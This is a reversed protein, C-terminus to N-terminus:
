DKVCRISFAYEKPATSRNVNKMNAGTMRMWGASPSFESSSWFYANRDIFSFVKLDSQCNGGWQLNFDSYKGRRLIAGASRFGGITDLLIDWEEDTPIHWNDPCIGLLSDSNSGVNLADWTYLRGYIRCYATDNDYCCSNIKEGDSYHVTNLNDAMWLQDGIRITQYSIGDCDTVLEQSFAIAPFLVCLIAFQFIKNSLISM